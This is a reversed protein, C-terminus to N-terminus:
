FNYGVINSAYTDWGSANKYASVSATPVYIKCRILWSGNEYYWFINNGATPPTTPKCYVSKLSRCNYFASYGISTVGDPITVSTMSQCRSFAKNGISTIEKDFIIVGQGNQYTNSVIKANFADANHPKIIKNDASTYVITNRAIKPRQPEQQAFTFVPMFLSCIAIFLKAITKMKNKM